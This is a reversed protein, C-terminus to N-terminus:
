KLFIDRDSAAHCVLQFYFPLELHFCSCEDSKMLTLTYPVKIPGLVLLYDCLELM